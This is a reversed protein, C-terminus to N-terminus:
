IHVANVINVNSMSRWKLIKEICARTCWGAHDGSIINITPSLKYQQIFDVIPYVLVTMFHDVLDATGGDILYLLKTSLSQTIEKDIKDSGCKIWSEYKQVSHHISNLCGVYICNNAAKLNASPKNELDILYISTIKNLDIPPNSTLMTNNYATDSLYNALTNKTIIPKVSKPLIYETGSLNEQIYRLMLKAAQQEAKTKSSCDTDSEIVLDRGNIQITVTAKWNLSHPKGSSVSQYIPIHTKKKQCFEQLLNKESM